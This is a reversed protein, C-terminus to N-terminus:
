RNKKVRINQKCFVDLSKNKFMHMQIYNNDVFLCFLFVIVSPKLPYPFRELNYEMFNEATYLKIGLPIFSGAIVGRYFDGFKEPNGLPISRFLM